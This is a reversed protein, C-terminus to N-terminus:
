FSMAKANNIRRQFDEIFPSKQEIGLALAQEYAKIAPAKQKLAEYTRGLGYFYLVAKPHTKIIEIFLNRAMEFQEGDYLIWALERSVEEPLVESVQYKKAREAFYTKIAKMGGYAKFEQYNAFMPIQYDSFVKSLGEYVTLYPTTMHVQDPLPDNYWNFQEPAKQEFLAAFQALMSIRIKGEAAVGAMTLYVSKSLQKNDKFLQEYLDFLEDDFSPSAALYNEFSDPSTALMSLVFYGALSHGFLTKHGSTRYNKDLFAVVEENIFRKFNDKHDRLDRDRTDALFPIGVIISAPMRGQKVLVGAANVAHDFHNDGSLLIIVPYGTTSQEYGEPLHVLLPRKEALVKSQLQYKHGLERTILEGNSLVAHVNANMLIMFAPLLLIKLLRM